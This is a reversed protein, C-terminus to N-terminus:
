ANPKNDKELWKKGKTERWKDVSELKPADRARENIVERGVWNQFAFSAARGQRKRRQFEPIDNSVQGIWGNLKECAREFGDAGLKAKWTDVEFDNLWVFDLFKKHGNKKLDETNLDESDETTCAGAELAARAPSTNKKQKDRNERWRAQNKALAEQDEIVRTNSFGGGEKIILGRELCYPIFSECNEVGRSTDVIFLLADEDITANTAMSMAAYIQFLSLLGADGFRRHLACVKPNAFFDVDILMHKLQARQSM